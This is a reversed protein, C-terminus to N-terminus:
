FKIEVVEHLYVDPVEIINGERVVLGLDRLPMRASRVGGGNVKVKIDHVPFAEDLASWQQADWAAAEFPVMACPRHYLHVNM